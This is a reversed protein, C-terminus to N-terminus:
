LSNKLLVEKHLRTSIVNIIPADNAIKSTPLLLRAIYPDEDISEYVHEVVNPHYHCGGPFQLCQKTHIHGQRQVVVAQHGNAANSTSSGYVPSRYTFNAGRFGYESAYPKSGQSMQQQNLNNFLDLRASSNTKTVTVGNALVHHLQHHNSDTSKFFSLGPRLSNSSPFVLVLFLMTLVLTVIFVCGITLFLSMPESLPESPLSTQPPPHSPNSISPNEQHNDHDEMDISPSSTSDMDANLHLDFLSPNIMNNSSPTSPNNSSAVRHHHHHHSNHVNDQSPLLSSSSSSVASPSSDVLSNFNDSSSSPTTTTTPSSELPTQTSTSSVVTRQNSQNSDITSIIDGATLVPTTKVKDTQKNTTMVSTLERSSLVPPSASPKLTDSLCQFQVELYKPVAPCPDGFQHTSAFLYCDSRNGCQEQIVRFSKRSMCNTSWDTQGQPNCMSISFRGFNARILNIKSGEPCALELTNGECAIKIEYAPLLHHISNSSPNLCEVLSAFFSILLILVSFLVLVHQREFLNSKQKRRHNFISGRWDISEQRNVHEQEGENVLLCSMTDTTTTSSNSNIM